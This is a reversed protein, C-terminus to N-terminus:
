KSDVTSFELRKWEGSQIFSAWYFPHSLDRSRDNLKLEGGIGRAKSSQSRGAGTSMALHVERLAGARGGGAKLRKYYAIMLDRTATDSVRWLSMVQSEAGALVLARRLGYVGEGNKVNGVGTECASLVVLQTGWLDLGTVELSTLVGDEGEGSQQQNVGALALGSRLLPNEDRAPSAGGAGLSLGRGAEPSDPKRQAALFFGHTAVHLVSPGAVKKAAAETAQPGTLIKVGELLKGLEKAEAATGALPTFRAQRFDASRLGRESQETQASEAVRAANNIRDFAPNAIVVPQQRSPAHEQLRLLDRGSTLYSILYSQVLYRNREDVLAGFPILNLAGDPSIFLHRKAGALRRVPRMVIEDLTRGARRFNRSAPAALAARFREVAREVTRADGLKAWKAAGDNTMVYAAYNLQGFSEANTRGTVDFPRYAVFEILAADAPIAQRVREVSVPQSQARFPASRTSVAAELQELQGELQGVREAHQEPTIQNPGNLVLSALQARGGSLQEILARDEPSARRRLTEIGGSMADLVRGKRQLLANLALSAAQADALADRLHLSLTVDTEDALTNLYLLKQAESGVALVLALNRERIDNCRAQWRVAAQPNGRAEEFLASAHLASAVSPHDKGLSKEAIEVARKLMPGALKFDRQHRYVSALNVLTNTLAPHSAGLSKELIALAREYLSAAKAFEGKEYYLTALNNLPVAVDPHDPGLLKERIELARRYLPEARTYDRNAFYLRALNNLSIAVLRHREGLQKERISLARLFLPEARQRDGRNEYLTALSNLTSAVDLSDPGPSKEQIALVRQFMPEPKVLDDKVVYISALNYLSEAVLPHDPSLVKERVAVAREFLQAARDYNGTNYYVKALDSATQATDPHQLGLARERITLIRELIEAAAAFKREAKLKEAQQQLHSVEEL